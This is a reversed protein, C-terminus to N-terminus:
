HAGGYGQKVECRVLFRATVYQLMKLNSLRGGLGARRLYGLVIM